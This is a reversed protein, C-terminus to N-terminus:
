KPKNYHLVKLWTLFSYDERFPVWNSTRQFVTLEKVDSAICPVVEYFSFNINREYMISSQHNYLFLLKYVFFIHYNQKDYLSEVTRCFQQLDPIDLWINVNALFSAFFSAMPWM